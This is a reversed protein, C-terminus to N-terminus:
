LRELAPAARHAAFHEALAAYVTRNFALGFHSAAPHVVRAGPGICYRWDVFGDWRSVIALQPLGPPLPATAARVSPCSCALTLCDRNVTTGRRAHITARAAASGARLAPNVRMGRFPAALMTLSAVLEPERSAAARSIIGGLSHGVVHSPRATERRTRRLTEILRDTLVDVCDANWGIDAIRARYGMRELWARLPHLYLGRTLFGHVLVVPAGDGRPVGHGRHIASLQLAAWEAPALLEHWSATWATRENEEVFQTPGDTRRYYVRAAVEQAAAGLAALATIAISKRLM